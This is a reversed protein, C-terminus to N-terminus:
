GAQHLWVVPTNESAYRFADLEADWPEGLWDALAETLQEGADNEEILRRIDTESLMNNGHADMVVHRIGLQPTYMWRAGNLGFTQEETVEWRIERWGLLASALKAGTGAPGDWFFETRLSGDLAPQTRWRMRTVDGLEAGIAWELHPTIVRPCAHVILVGRTKDTM